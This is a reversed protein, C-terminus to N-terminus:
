QENIIADSLFVLLMRVQNIQIAYAPNNKEILTLVAVIM